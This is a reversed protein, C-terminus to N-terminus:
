FCFQDFFRDFQYAFVNAVKKQYIIIISIQTSKGM